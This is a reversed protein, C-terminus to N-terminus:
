RGSGAVTRTPSLIPQEKLAAGVRGVVSAVLWMVACTNVKIEM